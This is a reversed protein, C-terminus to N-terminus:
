EPMESISMLNLYICVSIHWTNWRLSVLDKTQDPTSVLEYVGINCEWISLHVKRCPISECIKFVLHPFKKLVEQIAHSWLFHTSLQDGVEFNIIKSPSENKLQWLSVIGVTNFPLSPVIEHSVQMSISSCDSVKTNASSSSPAHSCCFCSEALPALGHVPPAEYHQMGECGRRQALTAKCLLCIIAGPKDYCMWTEQFMWNKDLKQEGWEGVDQWM